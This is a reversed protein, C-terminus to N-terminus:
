HNTIPTLKEITIKYKGMKKGKFTIDQEIKATEANTDICLNKILWISCQEMLKIKNIMEEKKM